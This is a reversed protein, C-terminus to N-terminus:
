NPLRYADLAAVIDGPLPRRVPNPDFMRQVILAFPLGAMEQTPHAHLSLGLLRLQDRNSPHARAACEAIVIALAYLDSKCSLQRMARMQEPSMYGLTGWTQGVATLTAEDLHRAVGLDFLCARGNALLRINAPKVDRHVIRLRWLEEVAKACDFAIAGIEQVTLGRRQLVDSLTEGDLYSTAVVVLDTHNAHIAGTWLLKAIFRCDISRLANVERQIRQHTQGPFYVKIAADAGDVRGRFVNGQGGSALFASLVVNGPLAAQITATDALWAPIAM